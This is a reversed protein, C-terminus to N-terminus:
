EVERALTALIEHVAMHALDSAMIKLEIFDPGEAEHFLFL